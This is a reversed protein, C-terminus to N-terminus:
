DEILKHLLELQRICFKKEGSYVCSMNKIYKIAKNIREGARERSGNILEKYADFVAKVREMHVDGKISYKILLKELENIKVGCENIEEGNEDVKKASEDIKMTSKDTKAIVKDAKATSEDIKVTSKDAKATNEDAKATSEDAKATNEDAKMASEYIKVANKNANVASENVRVTNEDVNDENGDFKEEIRERSEDARVMNEYESICKLAVHSKYRVLQQYNKIQDILYMYALEIQLYSITCKSLINENRIKELAKKQMRSNETDLYYYYELIAQYALIDNYAEDAPLCIMKESIQKYAAGTYLLKAAMLQANHCKETLPDKKLLLYTAMDNCVQKVRPVGNMILFGFGM